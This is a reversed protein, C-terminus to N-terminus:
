SILNELEFHNLIQITGYGTRVWGRRSFETLIRSVSVRNVSIAAALEEQTSHVQGDKEATALLQRALRQDAPRFAMDDMQQSLLRVARALYQIMGMALNPDRSFEQTVLERDIPVIECSTVAVASSVRPLEDFFSAEGFISGEQYVRLVRETGDDSQIFSKVRGQKLFYFCTAQSEQLYIIHGPFCRVVARQQAFPRWLQAPFDLERHDVTYM